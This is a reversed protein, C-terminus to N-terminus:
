RVSSGGERWGACLGIFFTNLFFTSPFTEEDEAEKKKRRRRRRRKLAIYIFGLYSEPGIIHYLWNEGVEMACVCVCVCCVCLSYLRMCVKKEGEKMAWWERPARGNLALRATAIVIFLILSLSLPFSDVRILIIIALPHNCTLLTDSGALKKKKGGVKKNNNELEKFIYILKRSLPFFFWSSHLSLTQLRQESKHWKCVAM